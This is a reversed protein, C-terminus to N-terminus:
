IKYNPFRADSGLKYSQDTLHHSSKIATDFSELAVVSLLNTRCMAPILNAICYQLYPSVDLCSTFSTCNSTHRRESLKHSSNQFLLVAGKPM